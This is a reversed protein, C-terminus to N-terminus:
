GIHTYVLGSGKVCRSVGVTSKIMLAMVNSRSAFGPRFIVSRNWFSSGAFNCSDYIKKFGRVHTAKTRM